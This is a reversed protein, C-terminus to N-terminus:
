YNGAILQDIKARFNEETTSGLVIDRIIGNSDILFSTPFFMVQYDKWVVEGQDLLVPYTMGNNQVSQQADEFTDQEIANISLIVLGKDQYDQYIRQLAPLEDKCPICWSTWYNILVPRGRLDSLSVSQGDLTKLTFGPALFGVQPATAPLQDAPLLAPAPQQNTEPPVTNQDPSPPVMQGAPVAPQAAPQAAAAQGAAFAAKQL